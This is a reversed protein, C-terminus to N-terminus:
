TSLTIDFTKLKFLCKKMKRKRKHTIKWIYTIRYLQLRRQLSTLKLEQLIENHNLHQVETIKYTFTLHIAEIAHIDKAKWPNWLLCSYEQMPIVLSKLLTMMLSRKRSQLVRLVWGAILWAVRHAQNLIVM